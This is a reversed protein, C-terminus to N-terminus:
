IVYWLKNDAPDLTLAVSYGGGVPINVILTADAARLDVTEPGLNLLWMMPGGPPLDDTDPLFVSKGAVTPELAYFRAVGPALQYDETLCVEASMGCNGDENLKLGNVLEILPIDPISGWGFDQMNAQLAGEDVEKGFRVPVDFECGGTVVGGPAGGFTVVGSTTDLTYDVGTTKLAGDVAVKVTGTVPKTLYRLKTAPGSTYRRVLRFQNTTGDVAVLTEDLESVTEHSHHTNGSPTTAYDLWDKYRFGHLCGERAMYFGLLANLDGPTKVSYAANYRRRPNAWRGVREEAGSEIEIINTSFGPGGSTNPTVGENIRVEHFSM